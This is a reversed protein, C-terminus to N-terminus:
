CPDCSRFLLESDFGARKRTRRQAGHAHVPILILLLMIDAPVMAYVSKFAQNFLLRVNINVVAPPPRLGKADRLRALYQQHAKEVYNRTLEARFPVAADLWVGVVPRRGRQLDQQFKPPIEIAFRLEGNRLRRDLETMAPYRATSRLISQAAFAIRMCAAPPHGTSIWSPSPCITLTSRSGTDSCSWSSCRAWSRSSWACLTTGWSSRKAAPSLGSAVSASARETGASGPAASRQFGASDASESHTASKDAAEELYGIFAEELDKAKREAVLQAPPGQALVKGAHMMSMRDCREAENMFHTSLFITVGNERSLQILLEWFGDRAVPDVGSTPEDLILMEPEHIVAVALSLRQRIGLPLSEALTDATTELTFRTLMENVRKHAAEEAIDFLRAHLLLNQRVTLETYLSFAQSMFGVRRRTEM